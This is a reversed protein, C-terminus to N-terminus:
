PGPVRPKGPQATPGQIRHAGCTGTCGRRPTGSWPLLLRPSSICITTDSARWGAHEPLFILRSHLARLIYPPRCVGRLLTTLHVFEPNRGPECEAEVTKTKYAHRVCSRVKQLRLNTIRLISTILAVERPQQPNLSVISTFSLARPLCPTWVATVGRGFLPMCLM